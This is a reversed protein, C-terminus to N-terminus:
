HSLVLRSVCRVGVGTIENDYGIYFLELEASLFPLLLGVSPVGAVWSKATFLSALTKLAARLLNKLVGNTTHKRLVFKAALHEALQLDVFTGLM